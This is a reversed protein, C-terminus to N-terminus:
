VHAGKGHAACTGAEVALTDGLFALMMLTPRTSTSMYAKQFTPLYRGPTDACAMWALLKLDTRRRIISPLRFGAHQTARQRTCQKDTCVHGAGTNATIVVYRTHGCVQGALEDTTHAHQADGDDSHERAVASHM